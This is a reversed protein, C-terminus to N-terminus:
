SAPAGAVYVRDGGNQKARYLEQDASNVVTTSDQGMGPGFVAVGVSVTPCIKQGRVSLPTHHLGTCLRHALVRAAELSTQPALIIFEDGGYRAVVDERRVNDVLYQGLKVLLEDGAAHGMTDNVWKLGTGQRDIDLMIVALQQHRRESRSIEADLLEFFHRHNYLGTLGDRTALENARAFLAANELAISAQTALIGFLEVVDEAFPEADHRALMAVGKLDDRVSLLLMEQELWPRGDLEEASHSLIQSVKVEQRRPQVLEPLFACMRSVLGAVAGSSLTVNGGVLASPGADGLGDLLLVGAGDCGAFELLAQVFVQAVHALELAASLARGIYSIYDLQQRRRLELERNAEALDALLQQNRRAMRQRDLARDVTHLVVQLDDVPKELYEYAGLRVAEIATQLDAFGTLIIVECDPMLRKTERLVDIGSLRPLRLDSICVEFSQGKLTEIAEEGSSATEVLYGERSLLRRLLSRIGPEDDVILIRESAM